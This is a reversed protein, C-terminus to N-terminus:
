FYNVNVCMTVDFLARYWVEKGVLARAVSLQAIEGGIFIGNFILAPLSTFHGSVGFALNAGGPSLLCQLLICCCFLFTWM